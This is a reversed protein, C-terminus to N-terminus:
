MFFLLNLSILPLHPMTVATFGRRQGGKKRQKALPASPKPIFTSSLDHSLSLALSLYRARVWRCLLPYNFYGPGGFLGWGDRGEKERSKKRGECVWGRGGRWFVRMWMRVNESLLVYLVVCFAYQSSTSNRGTLDASSQDVPYFRCFRFCVYNGSARHSRNIKWKYM